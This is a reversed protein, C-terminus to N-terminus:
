ETLTSQEAAAVAHAIRHSVGAVLVKELCPPPLTVFGQPRACKYDAM